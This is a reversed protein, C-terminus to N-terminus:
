HENQQRVWEFYTEIRKAIAKAKRKGYRETLWILPDKKHKTNNCSQEGGKLSHCLPIINTPESNGGKAFPIWHDQVLIHWLGAPRGCVACVGGFYDLARQWDAQTFSLRQGRRHERRKHSQRRHVEPHDKRFQRAYEQEHEKNAIHWQRLAAHVQEPHEARYKSSHERGKEPHDNYLERRRALKKDHDKAKSRRNTARARDPHKHNWDVSRKNMCLRCAATLGCKIRHDAGFFELTAPLWDGLPNICKEKRSCQKLTITIITM